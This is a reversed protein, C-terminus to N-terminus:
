NSAKKKEKKQPQKLIQVDSSEILPKIRDLENEVFKKLATQEPTPDNIRALSNAYGQLIGIAKIFVKDGVDDKVPKNEINYGYKKLMEDFKIYTQTTKLISFSIISPKGVNKPINSISTLVGNNELYALVDIPERGILEQPLNTQSPLIKIQKAFTVIGYATKKEKGQLENALELFNFYTQEVEKGKAIKPNYLLDEIGADVVLASVNEFNFNSIRTSLGILEYMFTDAKWGEPNKYGYLEKINDKLYGFVVERESTNLGRRHRFAHTMGSIMYYDFQIKNEPFGPTVQVNKYIENSHALMFTYFYHLAKNSNGTQQRKPFANGISGFAILLDEEGQKVNLKGCYRAYLDYALQKQQEKNLYTFLQNKDSGLEEFYMVDNFEKNEFGTKVLSGNAMLVGMDRLKNAWQEKEDKTAKNWEGLSTPIELFEFFKVWKSTKNSAIINWVTEIGPNKNLVHDAGLYNVGKVGYYVGVGITIGWLLTRLQKISRSRILEKFGSQSPVAMGDKDNYAKELGEKVIELENVKDFEGAQKTYEIMTTLTDRIQQYKSTLVNRWSIEQAYNSLAASFPGDLGKDKMIKLMNEQVAETATLYRATFIRIFERDTVPQGREMKKLIGHIELPKAASDVGSIRLADSLPTMTLKRKFFGGVDFLNQYFKALETSKGTKEVGKFTKIISQQLNIFVPTMKGPEPLAIKVTKELETLTKSFNFSATGAVKEIDKLVRGYNSIQEYNQVGFFELINRKLIQGSEDLLKIGKSQIHLDVASFFNGAFNKGREGKFIENVTDKNVSDLLKLFNRFDDGFKGYSKFGFPVNNKFEVSDFVDTRLKKVYKELDMNKPIVLNGTNNVFYRTKGIQIETSIKAALEEYSEKQIIGGGNSM